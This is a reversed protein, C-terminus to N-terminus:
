VIRLQLNINEQELNYTKGIIECKKTGLMTTTDRNINVNVVGGFVLAYYKIPVTIGLMGHVDKAYTLIKTAFAQAGSQDVLYTDFDQQRYCKYKNFIASEEATDTLWTKYDSNNTDPVRAYSVRASSLVESPNYSIQLADVLIDSKVITTTASASTDILKFSYRGDPQVIFLGFISACIDEILKIPEATKDTEMQITVNGCAAKAADWDTTNFYTENYSITGLTSLIAFIADLANLNTCTYYIQKSLRKRTDVLQISMMDEAITITEIYGSYLLQYESYPIEAYGFYIRAMNGYINFTDAFTDFDGDANILSISASSFALKGFYLPDRSYGLSPVAGLRGEYIQNAGIPTFEEKSFGHVVGLFISHIYPEDYNPLSVYLTTNTNDYYFSQYTTTVLALTSVKTLFLQDCQISGINSFVEQPTFGDLLSADVEPYSNNFNVKWIGAGCNIWQANIESIDIELLIKPTSVSRSTWETFTM